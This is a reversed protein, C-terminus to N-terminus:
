RDLLLKEQLFGMLNVKLHEQYKKDIPGLINIPRYGDMFFKNKGLILLPVIKSVKMVKPYVRTRTITNFLHTLHQSILTNIKKLVNMSLNTNCITWSNKAGKILKKTDNITLLPIEFNNKNRPILHELITMPNIINTSFKNRIESIKNTFFTNAYNALNKPKNEVEGNIILSSPPGTNNNKTVEKLNAWM